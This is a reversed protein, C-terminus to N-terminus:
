LYNDLFDRPKLVEINQYGSVKLLHKDGSVVLNSESALACALFKDDDPDECVKEPLPPVSFVVAHQIVYELMPELNVAPHEEALIEGVRRYEDLIEPSVVLQIEGTRWAELIQFPPGSFFVGSVFVNTDLVVKV